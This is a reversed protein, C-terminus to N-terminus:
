QAPRGLSVWNQHRLKPPDRLSTFCLDPRDSDLLNFSTEKISRHELPNLVTNRNMRPNPGEDYNSM